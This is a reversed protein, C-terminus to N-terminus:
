VQCAEEQKSVICGDKLYIVRDCRAAIDINHTIIITTTNAKKNHQSFLNLITDGTKSDLAGTPEDALLISPNNILARAIAVRQQQGGSLQMPRYHAYDQMAVKELMAMALAKSNVVAPNAYHTPLLVNQLATLKSLLFFSQFVFGITQNRLQALTEDDLHTVKNSQLFYDGSTPRDLLGLINMISSKGSGSPGMIAVFEGSKIDLNINKLVHLHSNGLPYVKQVDRLQITSSM